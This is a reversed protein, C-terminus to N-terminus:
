SFIAYRRGKRKKIPYLKKYESFNVSNQSVFGHKTLSRNAITRKFIM